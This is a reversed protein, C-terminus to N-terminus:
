RAVSLRFTKSATSGSTDAISLTVRHDGSPLEVDTALLGYPTKVAHDLLRRTIDIGLWGYTANFSNMDLSSGTGPTFRLEITVPNRIPQSIDPQVLVITPPPPRDPPAPVEPASNNRREEEPTILQWAMTQADSLAPLFCLVVLLFRTVTTMAM